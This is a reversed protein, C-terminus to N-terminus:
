VLVRSRWVIRTINRVNNSLIRALSNYNGINIGDSWM